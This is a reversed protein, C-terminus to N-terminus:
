GAYMFVTGDSICYLKEPKGKRWIEEKHKRYVLGKMFPPPLQYERSGDVTSSLCLPTTLRVWYKDKISASSEIRYEGYGYKSHNLVGVIGNKATNIRDMDTGLESFDLSDLEFSYPENVVTVHGFGLNRKAGLSFSDLDVINNRDSVIFFSLKDTFFMDIKDGNKIIARHKDILRNYDSLQDMDKIFPTNYNRLQFFDGYSKITKENINAKNRVPWGKWDKSGKVITHFIGHSVKISNQIAALGKERIIASYIQNGNIMTPSGIYPTDFQAFYVTIVPKADVM